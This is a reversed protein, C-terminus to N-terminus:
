NKWIGIQEDIDENVNHKAIRYNANQRIAWDWRGVDSYAKFHSAGIVHYLLMNLNDLIDLKDDASMRSGIIKDCIESCLCNVVCKPPTAWTFEAEESTIENVSEDFKHLIEGLPRVLNGICEGLYLMANKKIEAKTMEKATTSGTLMQVSYNSYEM